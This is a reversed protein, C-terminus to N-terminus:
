AGCGGSAGCAGCTGAGGTASFVNNFVFSAEGMGKDVFDIEVGRMYNLAVTDVYVKYDGADLVTDFPSKEDSFTMGYTMGGCGGGSVFIRIAEMDDGVDVFLEKLKEAAAESINVDSSTLESNFSQAVGM